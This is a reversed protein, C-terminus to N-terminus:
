DNRLIQNGKAEDSVTCSKGLLINNNGKLIVDAVSARFQSIDNLVIKNRSGALGGYPLTQLACLGSGTITNNAILGDSGMQLIATAKSGGGMVIDNGVVVAQDSILGIGMSTDGLIEVHNDMVVIKSNRTPDAGAAVDPFWGAIIGNPTAPSPLPFGVRPTIVKNKEIIVTGCGDQDLYNNLSEISNRSVNKFVNGRIQIVAGTTWKFYVGQGLTVQPKDGKLDVENNEFIILGSVAGPLYKDGGTYTTSFVAGQHIWMTESGELGKWWKYPNENSPIEYPLVNTIKNDWIEAGSTYQLHIPTWVARDFHIGRIAIKPGPAKPPLQAPLPSHFTWFGGKIKTLPKGRDDKEGVIEVDKAINVRGKDGFDFSGQLIIKGGQNVAMQVAEVDVSPNDQGIVQQAIVPQFAIVLFWFIIPISLIIKKLM